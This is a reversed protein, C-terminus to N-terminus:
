QYGVSSCGLRMSKQRRCVSPKMFAKFRLVQSRCLCEEDVKRNPRNLSVYRFDGVGSMQARLTNPVLVYPMHKWIWIRSDSPQFESNSTFLAFVPELSRPEMLGVEDSALKLDIFQPIPNFGIVCIIPLSFDSV